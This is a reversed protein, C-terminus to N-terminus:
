WMAGFTGFFLVCCVTFSVLCLPAFCLEPVESTTLCVFKEVFRCNSKGEPAQINKKLKLKQDVATRSSLAIFLAVVISGLLHRAPM